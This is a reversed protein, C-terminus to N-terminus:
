GHGAPGACIVSPTLPARMSWAPLCPPRAQVFFINNNRQTTATTTTTTTSDNDNDHVQVLVIGQESKIDVRSTEVVARVQHRDLGRKRRLQEVNNQRKRWRDRQADDLPKPGESTMQPRGFM